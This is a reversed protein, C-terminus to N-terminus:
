QFELFFFRNYGAWDKHFRKHKWWKKHFIQDVDEMQSAGIEFFIKAGSNLHEPLEEALRVFYSVGGILADKPEYLGVEDEVCAYEEETVYPPNCLIVDAREEFFPQLLDGYVVEVDLANTIANCRSLTVAKKSFDSLTVSLGPRKKKVSLGLCGSGTCLDWVVSAQDPIERLALTSLIETEQRPIFVGPCVSIKCDLFEVQGVIYATPERRGRRQIWNFYQKVVEDEVVGDLFCLDLTNICLLTALLEEATRRSRPVEREQLYKTSFRLLEHVSNM